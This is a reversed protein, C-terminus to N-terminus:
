SIYLDLFLVISYLIKIEYSLSIKRLVGLVVGYLVKIIVVEILAIGYSEVLKSSTGIYIGCFAILYLYFLFLLIFQVVYFIILKIKAWFMMKNYKQEIDAKNNNNDRAISDIEKIKKDNNILYFLGKYVIFSLICAVFGFSLYYNLDPYNDRLWIKQITSNNYFLSLFSLMM